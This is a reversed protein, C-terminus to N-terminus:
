KAKKPPPSNVHDPLPAQEPPSNVRKPLEPRSNVHKPLSPPATVAPAAAGADASTEAVPASTAPPPASATTPPTPPANIHLDGDRPAAEKAAQPTACAPAAVGLGM